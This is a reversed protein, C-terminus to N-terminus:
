GRVGLKNMIRDAILDLPQYYTHVAYISAPIAAGIVLIVAILSARRRFKERRTRLYPVTALPTIGL